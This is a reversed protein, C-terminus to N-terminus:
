LALRYPVPEQDDPIRAKGRAMPHKPRGSANTGLCIFDLGAAAERFPTIDDGQALDGWALLVPTEQREAIDLAHALAHHQADGWRRQPDMALVEAPDSSRISHLNVILVGGYGWRRAWGCLRQVTPDDKREDATSPNFMTVVLLPLKRDWIRWLWYRHRRDDSLVAGSISTLHFPHAGDMM